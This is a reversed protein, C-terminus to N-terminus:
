HTRQMSQIRNVQKSWVWDTYVFGDKYVHLQGQGQASLSIYPRTLTVYQLTGTTSWLLRPDSVSFRDTGFKSLKYTSAMPSFSDSADLMNAITILYWIYKGQSLLISDLPLTNLKM